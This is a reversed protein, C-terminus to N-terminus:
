LGAHVIVRRGYVLRQGLERAAQVREIVDAADDADDDQEHRRWLGLGRRAGADLGDDALM